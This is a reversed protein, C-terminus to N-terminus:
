NSNSVDAITTDSPEAAIDDKIVDSSKVIAPETEQSERKVQTSAFSLSKVTRSLELPSRLVFRFRRVSDQFHCPNSLELLSRNKLAQIKELHCPNSLELHCPYRPVLFEFVNKLAQLKKQIFEETAAEL